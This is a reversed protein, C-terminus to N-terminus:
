SIYRFAKASSDWTGFYSDSMHVYFCSDDTTCECIMIADKQVPYGLLKIATLIENLMNKM